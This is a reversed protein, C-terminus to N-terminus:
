WSAEVRLCVFKPLNEGIIENGTLFCVVLAQNNPDFSDWAARVSRAEKALIRTPYIKNDTYNQLSALLKGDSAELIAVWDRTSSLIVDSSPSADLSSGGLQMTRKLLPALGPSQWEGM